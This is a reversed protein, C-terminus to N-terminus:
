ARHDEIGLIGERLSGELRLLALGMMGNGANGSGPRLARRWRMVLEKFDEKEVTSTINIYVRMLFSSAM